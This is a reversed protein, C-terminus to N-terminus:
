RDDTHEQLALRGAPTIRWTRGVPSRPAEVVLGREELTGITRGSGGGEVARYYDAGGDRAAYRLFAAQAKTLKGM